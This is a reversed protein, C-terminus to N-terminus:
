WANFGEKPIGATDMAFEVQPVESGEVSEVRHKLKEVETSRVKKKRPKHTKVICEATHVARIGAYIEQKRPSQGIARATAHTKNM